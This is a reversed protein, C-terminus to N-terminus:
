TPCIWDSDNGYDFNGYRVANERVEHELMAKGQTSQVATPVARADLCGSDVRLGVGLPARDRGHWTGSRFSISM